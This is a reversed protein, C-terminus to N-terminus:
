WRHTTDLDMYHLQYDNNYHENTFNNNIAHLRFNSNSNNTTTFFAQLVRQHKRTRSTTLHRFNLPGVPGLVRLLRRKTSIGNMRVHPLKTRQGTPRTIIQNTITRLTTSPRMSIIGMRPPQTRHRRIRRISFLRFRRTAQLAHRRTLINHHPRSISTHTHQQRNQFTTSFHQSTLIAVRLNFPHGKSQRIVFRNSSGQNVTHTTITISFIFGVTIIRITTQTFTGASLRRMLKILQRIRTPSTVMIFLVKTNTNTRRM